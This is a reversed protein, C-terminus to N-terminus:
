LHFMSYSNITVFTIATGVSVNTTHTYKHSLFFSAKTVFLLDKLDIKTYNEWGRSTRLFLRKRETKGVTLM